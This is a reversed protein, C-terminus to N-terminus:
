WGVETEYFEAGGAGELPFREEAAYPGGGTLPRASFLTAHEIMIPPLTFRGHRQLFRVLAEPRANRLRALTIHGKFKRREPDLGADRAAREHAAALADLEPSAVVDAYVAHPHNGGFAGLGMIKLEFVPMSVAALRDIFEEILSKQEVDGVFCLTLHLNEPEVWRAGPIPMRLRALADRADEHLELGTFLRAM